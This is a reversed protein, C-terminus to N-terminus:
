FLQRYAEASRPNMNTPFLRHEKANFYAEHALSGGAEKLFAYMDRIYDPNDGRRGVGWEGIAFKKGKSRAFQLFARLGWPGGQFTEYGFRAEADDYHSVGIYTIPAGDPYITRVDIRGKKAMYWGIRLNPAGAKMAKAIRTFCTKWQEPPKGAATWPFWDGSAEWGLRIEADGVGNAALRRAVERQEDDYDGGACAALNGGKPFLGHGFSVNASKARLARPQTGSAYGNMGSWGNKWEIWGTVVRVSTGRWAAFSLTDNNNRTGSTWTAEASTPSGTVSLIAMAGALVILAGRARGLSSLSM